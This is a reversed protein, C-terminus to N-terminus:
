TARADPLAEFITEHGTQEIWRRKLYIGLGGAITLEFQQATMRRLLEILHQEIVTPSM